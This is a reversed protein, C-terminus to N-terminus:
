IQLYTFIITSINCIFIEKLSIISKLLIINKDTEKTFNQLKWEKDLFNFAFSASIDNRQTIVKWNYPLNPYNIIEKYDIKESYFDWDWNLHKYKNLFILDTKCDSQVIENEDWKISPNRFIIEWDKKYLKTIAKMDWDYTTNIIFWIPTDIHLTPIDWPIDPNNYIINWDFVLTIKAWNLNKNKLKKLEFISLKNLCDLCDETSECIDKKYYNWNLNPYKSIFNWSVKDTLVKWDLLDKQFLLIIKTLIDVKATQIILDNLITYNWKLSYNDAINELPIIFTISEWNWNLDPYMYLLKILDNTWFLKLDLNLIAEKDWKLDPYKLINTKDLENITLSYYNWNLNPFCKTHIMRIDKKTILAGMDWPIHKNNVIIDMSTTYTIKPMDLYKYFHRIIEIPLHSANQLAKEQFYNLKKPKHKLYLKIDSLESLIPSHEGIKDLCKTSRWSKSSYAM